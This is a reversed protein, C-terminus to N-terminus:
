GGYELMNLANLFFVLFLFVFFPVDDDRIRTMSKDANVEQILLSVESLSLEM